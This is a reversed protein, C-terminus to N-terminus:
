RGVEDEGVAFILALHLFFRTRRKFRLLLFVRPLVESVVIAYPVPSVLIFGAALLRMLRKMEDASEVLTLVV